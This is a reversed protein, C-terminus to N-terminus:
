SAGRAITFTRWPDRDAHSFCMEVTGIAPRLIFAWETEYNVPDTDRYRCVAGPQETCALVRRMTDLGLAAGATLREIADFRDRSEKLIDGKAKTHPKLEPTVGHNTCWVRKGEPRRVGMLDGAKEVVAAAGTKDVLAWNTGRDCAKITDLLAIAEDVTACRSLVYRGQLHVDFFQEPRPITARCSSGGLALGAENIGQAFWVTGPWSMALMAMGNRPRVLCIGAFKGETAPPDSAKGLMPGDPTDSFIINSCGDVAARMTAYFNALYIWKFPFGSGDAVGRIEEVLEPMREETYTMYRQRAAELDANNWHKFRRTVLDLVPPIALKTAAGLQYGIEYPTGSLEAYFM